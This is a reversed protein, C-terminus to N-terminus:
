HSSSQKLKNIFEEGAEKIDPDDHIAARKALKEAIDHDIETYLELLRRYEDYSGNEIIPEAILEINNIVWEKPMALIIKRVTEVAGHSFSSLFILENFLQLQESQKLYPVIHMASFRDKGTLAKKLISVRDIDKGLFEQLAQSYMQYSTTVREWIENQKDMIKEGCIGM